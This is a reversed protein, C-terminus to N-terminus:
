PAFVQIKVAAGNLRLQIYGLSAGATAFYTTAGGNTAVYNVASGISLENTAAAGSTTASRGICINNNGTTLGTGASHGLLVNSAGTTLNPAVVPGVLTNSSATTALVAAQYGIAVNYDCTESVHLAQYGMAVNGDGSTTGAVSPGRLASTGIVVNYAGSHRRDFTGLNGMADGGVAVNEAATATGQWLANRGIATNRLGPGDGAARGSGASYGFLTNGNSSTVYRGAEAGVFTQNNGLDTVNRGANMGVLVANSAVTASLGAAVGVFVNSGTAGALASGANTGLMVNNAQTTLQAGAGQGFLCNSNGTTINTSIAGFITNFSGTTINAAANYGVVTNYTGSSNAGGRNARYGVSTNFTGTTVFQQSEHGVAVNGPTGTANLLSLANAGVAVNATGGSNVALAGYGLAINFTGAGLNYLASQGIGINYDGTVQQGAMVGDGIAILGASTAGLGLTPDVAGDGDGGVIINQADGPNDTWSRGIYLGQRLQLLRSPATLFRLNPDGALVGNNNFIIQRDASDGSAPVSEWASGTWLFVNNLDLDYVMVGEYAASLPVALRQATTLKPFAFGNGTTSLLDERLNQVFAQPM